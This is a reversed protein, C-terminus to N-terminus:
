SRMPPSRLEWCGEQSGIKGAANSAGVNIIKECRCWINAESVGEFKPVLISGEVPDQEVMSRAKEELRRGKSADTEKPSYM